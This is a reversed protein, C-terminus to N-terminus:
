RSKQRAVGNVHQPGRRSVVQPHSSPQFYLRFTTKPDPHDRQEMSVLTLSGRGIASGFNHWLPSISVDVPASCAHFSWYVMLHSSVVIVSLDLCGLSSGRLSDIWGYSRLSVLHTFFFKLFTYLLVTNPSSCPQLLLYHHHAPSPHSHPCCM